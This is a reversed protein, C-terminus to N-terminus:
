STGGPVEATAWVTVQSMSGPSSAMARDLRGGPLRMALAPAQTSERMLGTFGRNESLGSCNMLLWACLGQVRPRTVPIENRREGKAKKIYRLDPLPLAVHTTEHASCKNLDHGTKLLLEQRERVGLGRRELKGLQAGLANMGWGRGTLGERGMLLMLRPHPLSGLAMPTEDAKAAGVTDAGAWPAYTM